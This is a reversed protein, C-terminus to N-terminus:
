IRYINILTKLYFLSEMLIHFLLVDKTWIQVQRHPTSYTAPANRLWFADVSSIPALPCIFATKEQDAEYVKVQHYGAKLDITSMFKTSKAENLLDDM